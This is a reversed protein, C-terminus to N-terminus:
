PAIQAGSFVSFATDIGKKFQEHKSLTLSHTLPTLSGTLTLSGMEIRQSDSLHTM